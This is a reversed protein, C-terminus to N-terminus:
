RTHLVDDIDVKNRNWQIGNQVSNISTEKNEHTEPVQDIEELSSINIIDLPEKLNEIDESPIDKNKAGKRTRPNKDKSSIPRGHKLRPQSENSQGVPIDIKIPANAAPIYSKTMGKPDTFANALQNALNQLQIIKQVELECQKTRPDFHSLSLANWSIEKELKKNEGGLAPFISEYFHYDSFHSTFLDKTTPELYKVISPSEYRVYIWMRRQPSMKNRQPLSIPVYM